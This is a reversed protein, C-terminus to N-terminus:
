QKTNWAHVAISICMLPKNINTISTSMSALLSTRPLITSLNFEIAKTCLDRISPHSSFILLVTSSHLVHRCSRHWGYTSIVDYNETGHFISGMLQRLSKVKIVLKLRIREYLELM